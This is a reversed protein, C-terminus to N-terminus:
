KYTCWLAYGGNLSSVNECGTQRLINVAQLSRMGHACYLICTCGQPIKASAAGPDQAIQSLPLHVAGPISGAEFEDLERVDVLTVNVLNKLDKIDIQM